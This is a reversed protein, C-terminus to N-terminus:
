ARKGKHPRVPIRADVFTQVLAILESTLSLNRAVGARFAGGMEALVGDPVIGNGHETLGQHFLPRVQHYEALSRLAPWDVSRELSHRIRSSLEPHRPLLAPSWSM